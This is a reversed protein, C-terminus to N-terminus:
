AALREAAARQRRERYTPLPIKQQRHVLVIKGAEQWMALHELRHKYPIGRTQWNCVRQLGHHKPWGLRRLVEMPGGLADILERDTIPKM